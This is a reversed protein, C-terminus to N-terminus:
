WLSSSFTDELIRFTYDSSYGNTYNWLYDSSLLLDEVSDFSVANVYYVVDILEKPDIEINFSVNWVANSKLQANYKSVMRVYHPLYGAGVAVDMVFWKHGSLLDDTYFDEFTDMESETLIMNVVMNTTSLYSMATQTQYGFGSQTRSLNNLTDSYQYGSILPARLASPFTPTAM